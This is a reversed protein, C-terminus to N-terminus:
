WQGFRDDVAFVPIFRTLYGRYFKFGNWYVWIVSMNSYKIHSWQSSRVSLEMWTTRFDMQILSKSILMEETWFQPFDSFTMESDIPYPDLQIPDPKRKSNKSAPHAEWSIPMWIDFVMHHDNIIQLLSIEMNWVIQIGITNQNSM